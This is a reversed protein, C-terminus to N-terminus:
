QNMQIGNIVLKLLITNGSRLLHSEARVTIIHGFFNKPADGTITIKKFLQYNERKLIPISKSKPCFGSEKLISIKNIKKYAKM